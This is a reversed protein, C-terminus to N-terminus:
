SNRNKRKNLFNYLYIMCLFAKEKLKFQFILEKNDKNIAVTVLLTLLLSHGMLLTVQGRSVRPAPQVEESHESRRTSQVRLISTDMSLSAQSCRDSFGSIELPSGFTMALSKTWRYYVLEDSLLNVFTCFPKRKCKCKHKHKYKRKHKCRKASVRIRNPMCWHKWM